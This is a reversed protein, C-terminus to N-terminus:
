GTHIITKEKDDGKKDASPTKICIKIDKTELEVESVGTKSVFKILSQIENLEM